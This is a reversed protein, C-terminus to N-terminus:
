DAEYKPPAGKTSQRDSAEGLVEAAKSDNYVGSGGYAGRRAELRSVQERLARVERELSSTYMDSESAAEAALIRARRSLAQAFFVAALILLGGAVIGGIIAGITADANNNHNTQELSTSGPAVSTLTLQTGDSTFTPVAALTTITTFGSDSVTDSVTDSVSNSVSNSVSTSAAPITSAQAALSLVLAWIAPHIQERLAHVQRELAECRSSDSNRTSTLRQRGARYRSVFVAALIFLAIVLIGSLVIAIIAEREPATSVAFGSATPSEELASTTDSINTLTIPLASAQAAFSLALAWIACYIHMTPRSAGSSFPAGTENIGLTSGFSTVCNQPQSGSVGGDGSSFPISTDSAEIGAAARTQNNSGDDLTLLTFSTSTSIDTRFNTLFQQKRRGDTETCAPLRFFHTSCTLTPLNAASARSVLRIQLNPPRPPPSTTCHQLCEPTITRDCSAPVSPTANALPATRKRVATFKPHSASPRMFSATPHVFDIKNQLVAPVSYELTRISTAGTDFHTFVSFETSLPANAQMVPIAIQLIDRAPTISRSFINNEDLTLHQGYLANAPDSVAYLASELGAINNPKLAIRLNLQEAAHSVGSNVFGPAPEVRTEIGPDPDM